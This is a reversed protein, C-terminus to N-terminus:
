ETHVRDGVVQLKHRLLGPLRRLHEAPVLIVDLHTTPSPFANMYGTSSVPAAATTHTRPQPSSGSSPDSTPHHTHCSTLPSTQHQPQNHQHSDALLCKRLPPSLADQHKSSSSCLLQKILGLRLQLLTCGPQAHRHLEYALRPSHPHHGCLGGDVLHAGCCWRSVSKQSRYSLQSAVAAGHVSM